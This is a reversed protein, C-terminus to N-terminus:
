NEGEFELLNHKQFLPSLDSNMRLITASFQHKEYGKKWLLTKVVNLNQACVLNVYKIHSVFM